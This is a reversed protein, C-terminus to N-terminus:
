RICTIVVTIVLVRIKVTFVFSIIFATAKYFNPQPHLIACVFSCAVALPQKHAASINNNTAFVFAAVFLM